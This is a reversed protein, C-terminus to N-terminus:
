CKIDCVYEFYNGDPSKPLIDELATTNGGLQYAALSM